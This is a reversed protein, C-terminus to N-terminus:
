ARFDSLDDPGGESELFADVDMLKGRLEPCFPVIREHDPVFLDYPVGVGVGVRGPRIKGFGGFVRTLGKEYEESLDSDLLVSEQDEFFVPHFYWLVLCQGYQCKVVQGVGLGTPKLGLVVGSM